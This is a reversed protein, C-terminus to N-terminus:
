AVRRCADIFLREDRAGVNATVVYLSGARVRRIVVAGTMRGALSLVRGDGTDLGRRACENSSGQARRTFCAARKPAWEHARNVAKWFRMRSFRKASSLDNTLRGPRDLCPVHNLLTGVASSHPSGRPGDRRGTWRCPLCALYRAALLELGVGEPCRRSAVIGNDRAACALVHCGCQRGPKSQRACFAAKPTHGRYRCGSRRASGGERGTLSAAGDCRTHCSVHFRQTTAAGVAERM